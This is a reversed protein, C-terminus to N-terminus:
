FEVRCLPCRTSNNFWPRICEGHFCHGCSVSKWWRGSGRCLCIACEGNEASPEHFTGTLVFNAHGMRWRLERLIHCSLGFTGTDNSCMLRAVLVSLERMLFRPANEGRRIFREATRVSMFMLEYRLLLPKMRHFWAHRLMRRVSRTFVQMEPTDAHRLMSRVRQTFVRMEPTLPPM